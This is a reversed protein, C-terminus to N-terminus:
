KATTQTSGMEWVVDKLDFSGDPKVVVCKYRYTVVRKSAEPGTLGAAYKDLQAPNRKYFAEGKSSWETYPVLYVKANAPEAPLKVTGM